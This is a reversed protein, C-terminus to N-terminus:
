ERSVAGPRAKSHPLLTTLIPAREFLMRMGGAIVERTGQDLPVEAWRVTTFGFEVELGDDYHVRISTLAGYEERHVATPTGFTEVWTRDTLFREPADALIVLDVDSSPSASGRAYSGVLAAAQIDPQAAAWDAFHELFRTVAAAKM